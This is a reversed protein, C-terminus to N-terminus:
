CAKYVYGATGAPVVDRDRYIISIKAGRAKCAANYNPLGGNDTYEIEYVQNGYYAVYTDCEPHDGSEDTNAQCEEAIAFDFHIAGVGQASIESTNKQAIALGDQHARQALLTAFAINDAPTLLKQSRTWSDLNDPEIAQFGANRCGDIWGGVIALLASRKAATSTDLLIENWGGDVVYKGAANKLLLDDHNAKWWKAEGPQAQFANVYCINYKGAAPPASRDRDVIRVAAAPTYAGGIQYDFQGNAPPLDLAAAIGCCCGAVAIAVRATLRGRRSKTNM